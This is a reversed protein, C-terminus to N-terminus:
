QTITNQKYMIEIARQMVQQHIANYEDGDAPYDGLQWDISDEMLELTIDAVSEAIEYLNRKNSM